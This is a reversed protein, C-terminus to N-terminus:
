TKESPPMAAYAPSTSPLCEYQLQRHKDTLNPRVYRNFLTQAQVGNFFVQTIRPHDSLFGEIDNTSSDYFNEVDWVAIGCSKLIRLREKYSKDPGAGVLEGMIPWFQNRKNAYYKRKDISELGPVSGLILVTATENEIPPPSEHLSVSRHNEEFHQQIIRPLNNELLKDAKLRAQKIKESDVRHPQMGDKVIFIDPGGAVSINVREVLLFILPMINIAQEITLPQNRLLLDALPLAYADGSGLCIFDTKSFGAGAFYWLSAEGGTLDDLGAVVCGLPEDLSGKQYRASLQISTFSIRDILHLLMTIEPDFSKKANSWAVEEWFSAVGAGAILVSAPSGVELDRHRKQGTHDKYRDEIKEARERTFEEYRTRKQEPSRPFFDRLFQRLDKDAIGLRVALQKLTITNADEILFSPRANPHGHVEISRIKCRQAPEFGRLERRDAALVVGDTCRTGIILTM